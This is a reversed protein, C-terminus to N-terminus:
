TDGRAALYVLYIIPLKGYPGEPLLYLNGIIALVMLGSKEVARLIRFSVIQSIFKALARHKILV